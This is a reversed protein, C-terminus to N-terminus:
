VLCYKWILIITIILPVGPGLLAGVFESAYEQPIDSLVGNRLDRQHVGWQYRTPRRPRDTTSARNDREQAIPWTSRGPGGMGDVTHITELSTDRRWLVRRTEWGDDQQGSESGGHHVKNPEDYSIKWGAVGTPYYHDLVVSTVLMGLDSIKPLPPPNISTSDKRAHYNIYENFGDTIDKAILIIERNSKSQYICYLKDTIEEVDITSSGDKYLKLINKIFYKIDERGLDCQKHCQTNCINDSSIPLKAGGVRNNKYLQKYKKYKKHIQISSM